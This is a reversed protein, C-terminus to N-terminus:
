APRATVFTWASRGSFQDSCVLFGLALGLPEARNAGAGPEADWLEDSLFRRGESEAFVRRRDVPWQASFTVAFSAFCVFLYGRRSHLWASFGCFVVFSVFICAAGKTRKTGKQEFGM